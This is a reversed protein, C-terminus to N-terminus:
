GASELQCSKLTLIYSGTASSGAAGETGDQSEVAEVTDMLGSPGGAQAQDGAENVTGGGSFEKIKEAIHSAQLDDPPTRKQVVPLVPPQRCPHHHVKHVKKELTM